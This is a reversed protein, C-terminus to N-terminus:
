DFAAKNIKRILLSGTPITECADTMVLERLKQEEFVTPAGYVAVSVGSDTTAIWKEQFGLKSAIPQIGQTKGLLTNKSFWELPLSQFSFRPLSYAKQFTEIFAKVDVDKSDFLKEVAKRPFYFATVKGDTSSTVRIGNKEERFWRGDSFNELLIDPAKETNGNSMYFRLLAAADQIPMGLYLSKFVLTGSKASEAKAKLEGLMKEDVNDIKDVDAVTWVVGLRRCHKQAISNGQEAAKQYWKITEEKSEAVGEGYEYCNALSVQAFAYNKEAAKRYWKVAEVKDRTVGEGTEYCTGIKYEAQPYGQDAAKRYWKLAEAEDKTVGQGMAYCNGLLYQGPANGQEAAKQYWRFGEAEDKAVGRGAKYAIALHLQGYVDGQEAAKKFWKFAEAEDKSVGRGNLYCVGLNDQGGAFGQEAAKQYWRFGEDEDKPVGQGSIYCYGLGSQGKAFGQDASKRHWKVANTYDPPTAKAYRYGIETQASANGAEAAKLVIEQVDNSGYMRVSASQQAFGFQCAVTLSFCIWVSKIVM